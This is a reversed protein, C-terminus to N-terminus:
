AAVSRITKNEAGYISEAMKAFMDSETQESLRDMIRYFPGAENSITCALKYYRLSIEYLGLRYYLWGARALVAYSSSEESLIRRHINLAALIDGRNEAMRSEEWREERLVRQRSVSNM